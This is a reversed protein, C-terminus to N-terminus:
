EDILDWSSLMLQPAADYLFRAAPAQWQSDGGSAGFGSAAWDTGGKLLDFMGLVVTSPNTGLDTVGWDSRSLFREVQQGLEGCAGSVGSIARRNWRGGEFTYSAPETILVLAQSLTGGAYDLRIPTSHLLHTSIPSAGVPISNTEANGSLGRNLLAYPAATYGDVNNLTVQHFLDALDVREIFLDEPDRPWGAPWTEPLQHAERNWLSDFGAETNLAATPWGAQLCSVVVLRPHTVTAVGNPGQQFVLGAPLEAPEVEGLNLNALNLRPDYVLIRAGGGRNTGSLDDGSGLHSAVFPVWAAVNTAPAQRDAAVARRFADGIREMQRAEERQRLEVARRILLGATPVMLMTLIALM